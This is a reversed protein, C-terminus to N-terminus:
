SKNKLYEQLTKSPNKSDINKVFTRSVVYMGTIIAPQNGIDIEFYQSALEVIIYLVTIGFESTEIGSKM